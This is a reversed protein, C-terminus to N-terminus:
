EVHQHISRLRSGSGGGAAVSHSSGPFRVPRRLDDLDADVAGGGARYGTAPRGPARFAWEIWGRDIRVCARDPQGCSGGQPHDSLAQPFAGTRYGPGSRDIDLISHRCKGGMAMIVPLYFALYTFKDLEVEFKGLIFSCGIGGLLAVLLWPLRLKLVNLISRTILEDDSTGALKFIDESSEEQLVDLVDDSTIRGILKGEADVVPLSVLDHKLFLRAVEEQDMDGEVRIVEPDAIEKLQVSSDTWVLMQIPFVGQLCGARDLTFAYTFHIEPQSHRLFEIAQHVTWFEPFALYDSTMIGGASEEDHALLRELDSRDEEDMLDLVRRARGEDELEGVVDAADDPEMEELLDSLEQDPLDETLVAILEEDAEALVDAALVESLCSFIRTAEDRSLQSMALALDAPHFDPLLCRLVEESETELLERLIEITTEVEEPM